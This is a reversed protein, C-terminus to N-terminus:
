DRPVQLVRAFGPSDPDDVIPEDDLWSGIVHALEGPHSFNMAHAAGHIVALTVHPPALRAVELVRHPPPMMPDRSGIVALAPVTMRMIREQSPFRTLEDFLRLANVPGFRLYDPVATRAMARQERGVDKTLQWLGRVFPQNYMGGAPSALVAARVREPAVHAAELVVPCGMSNGVLVADDIGLADLVSLLADALAPIGLTSPPSASRGYGPLDPVVNTARSALREATPLLSSGSIAFGHVHVIPTTADVTPGCRVFVDRGDVRVTRESWGPALEVVDRDECGARRSLVV